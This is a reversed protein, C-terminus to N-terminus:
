KQSGPSSPLDYTIIYIKEKSLEEPVKKITMKRVQTDKRECMYIYIM